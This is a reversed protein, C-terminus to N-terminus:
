LFGVELTVHSSRKRIPGASGRARPKYRSMTEGENVYGGVVWLSDVNVGKEKANAVASLLLKKLLRSRKQPDFELSSLAQEVQLKKIMDMVLRTKRASVRVGNLSAKAIVEPKKKMRKAKTAM